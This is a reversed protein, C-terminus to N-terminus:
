IYFFSFFFFLLDGGWIRALARTEGTPTDHAREVQRGGAAQRHGYLAHQDEDGPSARKRHYFHQLSALSSPTM